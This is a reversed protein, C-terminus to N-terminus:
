LKAGFLFPVSKLELLVDEFGASIVNGVNLTLDIAAVLADAFQLFHVGRCTQRRGHAAPELNLCPEEFALEGLLTQRNIM